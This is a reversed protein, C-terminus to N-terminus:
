LIKDKNDDSIIGLYSQKLENYADEKFRFMKEFIFKLKHNWLLIFDVEEKLGKFYTHGFGHPSLRNATNFFAIVHGLLENEVKSERLLKRLTNVNPLLEIVDFRREMASDLDVVSKDYPNMTAFIVVNQPISIEKESYPLKFKIERYDPEIYTLLEGFIKSPDGRSFEDIILIFLNDSDKRALTCLNLFLKDKPEFLPKSGGISATSVLGEIFDEYTFSPHFQVRELKSEDGNIIKLAVKLAYWTKSTGPPGSFLLGKTGRSLLQQVIKYIEDDDDLDNVLVRAPILAKDEEDVAFLNEIEPKTDSFCEESFKNKSTFAKIEDPSPIIADVVESTYKSSLKSKFLALLEDGEASQQIDFKENRLLWICLESKINDIGYYDSLIQNVNKLISVSETELFLLNAPRGPYKIDQFRSNALRTTLFNSGVGYDNSTDLEKAFDKTYLGDTNLAVVEGVANVFDRRYDSGVALNITQSKTKYLLRSTAILYRLGSIKEKRSKGTSSDLNILGKYASKM